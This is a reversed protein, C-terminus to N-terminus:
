LKELTNSISIPCKEAIKNWKQPEKPFLFLHGSITKIKVPKKQTLDEFDPMIQETLEQM